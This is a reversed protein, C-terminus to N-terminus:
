EELLEAIRQQIKEVENQTSRNKKALERALNVALGIDVFKESGLSLIWKGFSTECINGLALKVLYKLYIIVRTIYPEPMNVVQSDSEISYNSDNYVKELVNCIKMYTAENPDSYYYDVLQKISVSSFQEDDKFVKMFDSFTTVLEANNFIPIEMPYPIAHPRLVVCPKGASIIEAVSTSYWTYIRDVVLIWQKVSESSIVYFNKYKQTMKVLEPNGVEAPHPRYVIIESDFIELVSRFWDLISEQSVWSIQKFDFPDYSLSQYLDSKLTKDPMGIFSFSSIFLHLRKGEPLLYKLCLDHRNLYYSILEKRLFDLAIHGTLELNKEPVGMSILRQVTHYRNVGYFTNCFLSNVDAIGKITYISENQEDSNTYIQEWQLNVVKEMRSSFSAIYKFVDDNYMAFSIVVKAEIPEFYKYVHEWTEVFEVSYGRRELEFRLLCINELERNKVEYVFLFDTKRM